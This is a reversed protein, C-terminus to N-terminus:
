VRLAREVTDALAGIDGNRAVAYAPACSAILPDDHNGGYQSSYFIVPLQPRTIANRLTSALTFADVEPTFVGLIVADFPSNTIAAAAEAASHVHASSHGGRALVDRVLAHTLDSSDVVLVAHVKADTPPNPRPSTM